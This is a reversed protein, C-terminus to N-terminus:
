GSCGRFSAKNTSKFFLVIGLSLGSSKGPVDVAFTSGIISILSGSLKGIGTFRVSILVAPPYIICSKKDIIVTKEEKTEVFCCPVLFPFILKMMEYIDNRRTGTGTRRVHGQQPADGNLEDLSAKDIDM